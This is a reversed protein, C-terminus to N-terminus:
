AFKVFQEVPYPPPKYSAGSLPFRAPDDSFLHVHTDILLRTDAPRRCDGARGAARGGHWERRSIMHM